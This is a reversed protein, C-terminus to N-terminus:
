PALRINMNWRDRNSGWDQSENFCSAPVGRSEEEGEVPKQFGCCDCWLWTSQKRHFDVMCLRLCSFSQQKTKTKRWHPSPTPLETELRECIPSLSYSLSMCLLGPSVSHYLIFLFHSDDHFKKGLDYCQKPLINSKCIKFVFLTDSLSNNQIYYAPINTHFHITINNAITNYILFEM